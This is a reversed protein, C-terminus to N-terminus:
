RPLGNPFCWGCLRKSDAPAEVVHPPFGADDLNCRETATHTVGDVTVSRHITKRRGAEVYFVAAEVM